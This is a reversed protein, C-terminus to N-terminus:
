RTPKTLDHHQAQHIKAAQHAAVARLDEYNDFEDVIPQGIIQEIVDELTIIGTVEEFSNVVVFLHQKTKIFAQLAELLPQDEHIYVPCHLKAQGIKGSHKQGILDRLLLIGVIQNDEAFVPFRSHGSAHLEDLVLPGVADNASAAVVQSRPTQVHRVIKDGFTLAGAAIMLEDPPIRNDAQKAQQQLLELLDEKQYLRTHLLRAARNQMGSTARSLVPYVYHLLGALLPTTWTVLRRGVVGTPSAPLWAFGLWIVSVMGLLAVFNPLHRAMVFFLATASLGILLWLLVPASLGYASVRFLLKAFDDGKQSRRRLEKLPISAYTKQLSVCALTLGALLVTAIIYFMKIM